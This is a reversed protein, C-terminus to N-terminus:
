DLAPDGIALAYVTKRPAGLREAVTAIADRKSVGTALEARLAEVIEDDTPPGDEPRGALVIVYECKPTGLEIEGLTGREVTEFM